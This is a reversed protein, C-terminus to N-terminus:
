KDRLVAVPQSFEVVSVLAPIFSKDSQKTQELKNKVRRNIEKQPQKFLGSVELRLTANFILDNYGDDNSPEEFTNKEQLWYDFGTGKKSRSVVVHNKLHFALLISIATAAEDVAEDNDAWTRTLQGNLAGDWQLTATKTNSSDIKLEVGSKHDNNMLTCMCAEILCDARKKSLGPMEETALTELNISLTLEPKKLPM